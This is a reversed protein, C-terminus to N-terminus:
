VRGIPASYSSPDSKYTDIHIKVYESKGDCSLKFIIEKNRLKIDSDNLQYHKSIIKTLEDIINKSEM